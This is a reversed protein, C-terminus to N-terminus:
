LTAQRTASFCDAKRRPPSFLSPVIEARLKNQHSTANAFVGTNWREELVRKDEYKIKSIGKEM